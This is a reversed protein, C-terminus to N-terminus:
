YSGEQGKEYEYLADYLLESLYTNDLIDTIDIDEMYVKDIESPDQYHLTITIENGAMDNFPFSYTERYPQTYTNPHCNVGGCCPTRLSPNCYCM